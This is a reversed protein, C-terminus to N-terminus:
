GIEHTAEFAMGIGREVARVANVHLGGHPRCAFIRVEDLPNFGVGLQTPKRTPPNLDHLPCRANAFLGMQRNVDVEALEPRKRFVSIM